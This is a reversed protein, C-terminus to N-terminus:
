SRTEVLVIELLTLMKLLCRIGSAQEIVLILDSHGVIDPFPKIIAVAVLRFM